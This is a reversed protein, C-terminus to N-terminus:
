KFSDPLPLALLEARGVRQGESKLPWKYAAEPPLAPYDHM